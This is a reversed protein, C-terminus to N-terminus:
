PQRRPRIRRHLDQKTLLLVVSTPVVFGFDPLCVEIIAAGKAEEEITPIHDVSLNASLPDASPYLGNDKRPRSSLIVVHQYTLVGGNALVLGNSEIGTSKRQRLQRTMETLAHMSYNNGAGGFSTLGGLLTLPTTSPLALHHKALKPVIPFCSPLM